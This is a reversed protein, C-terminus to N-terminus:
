NIISEDIFKELDIAKIRWHKGIKAAPIIGAKVYNYITRRTVKLINAVEDITYLKLNETM